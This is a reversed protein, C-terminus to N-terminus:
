QKLYWEDTYLSEGRKLYNSSFNKELDCTYQLCGYITLCCYRLPLNYRMAAIAVISVFNLPIYASGIGM